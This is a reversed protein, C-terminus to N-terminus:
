DWGEDTEDKGGDGTPPKPPEHAPADDGLAERLKRRGEHIRWAVTGESCGLVEAAVKHSLGQLVVLVLTTRLTLSLGDIAKALREYRRREETAKAPDSGVPAPLGLRPDDPALPSTRKRSRIANLCLNVVIRHLWTGFESRGDFEGIGRMARFFADQVVDDAESPNSLLHVALRWAKKHHRQVLDAFAKRDGTRAKAVLDKDEDAM